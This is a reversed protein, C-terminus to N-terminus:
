LLKYEIAYKILDANNHMHMKEFIRSKYTSITNVSLSLEDSIDSISKGQVLLKFVQFERDSLQEHPAKEFDEGYAEALIEAVDPTIYKKGRLLMEIANVLEEPASEKTLYGSAGARISRLAYQEPAHTSLILVPTHPAIEKIQKIAEIGSLGPMSIDSIIVSWTDKVVKKLLEVGDSVEEIEANPFSKSLILILGKRLVNHDDALLIKM